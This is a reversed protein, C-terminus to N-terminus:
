EELKIILRGTYDIRNILPTINHEEFFQDVADRAGRWHGYDDIILVGFKSLRPYLFSLEHYTSEYWDTDLYLVSIRDPLHKPITDEVKGKIFVFNEVPYGTERLNKEVLEQPAYCWKNYGASQQELWYSKAPKSSLAEIDRESPESMGTFTDYLFIRRSTVGLECLKYAMAMAGGGRWVGCQVFDGQINSRVVYKISQGLAHIREPSTMTFPFVKRIINGSESSIDLPISTNPSQNTSLANLFRHIITKFM